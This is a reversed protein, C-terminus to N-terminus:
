RCCDVLSSRTKRLFMLLDDRFMSSMISYIFPNVVSNLIFMRQVVCPVSVGSYFLWLPLWTIIYVVTVTLLLYM